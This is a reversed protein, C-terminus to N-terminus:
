TGRIDDTKEWGEKKILYTYGGACWHGGNINPALFYVTVIDDPQLSVAKTFDEMDNKNWKLCIGMGQGVVATTIQYFSYYYPYGYTLKNRKHFLNWLFVKWWPKKAGYGIKEHATIYYKVKGSFLDTYFKETIESSSLVNTEM